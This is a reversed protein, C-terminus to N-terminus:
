NKTKKRWFFLSIITIFPIIFILPRVLRFFGNEELITAELIFIYLIPAIFNNGPNKFWVACTMSILLSFTLAKLLRHKILSSLLFSIGFSLLFYLVWFFTM